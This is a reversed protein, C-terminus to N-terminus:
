SFLDVVKNSLYSFFAGIGSTNQAPEITNEDQLSVYQIQYTDLKVLGLENVAYDEANRLSVNSELEFSLYAYESKMETLEASSRYVNNKTENLTSYSYVTLAMLVVLLICSIVSRRLAKQLKAHIKPAKKVQVRPQREPQPAFQSYDYALPTREM